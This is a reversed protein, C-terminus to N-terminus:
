PYTYRDGSGTASTGEPTTVTVDVTGAAGPPAIVTVLTGKANVAVVTAVASGFHVSTAGLLGSGSIKVKTGGGVPGSTVSLSSVTPATYTFRDVAGILTPGATTTVVIDVTGAVHAPTRVTVKSGKRNAKVDTAPSGGFDVSVPATLGTGVITVKTGGSSPGTAPAVSTIVPGTVTWTFSTHGAFGSGDIATVTVTVVGSRTPTGTVTGTTPSITLGPPLGVASYSLTATPSSDTAVVHVPTVTAGVRATQDAVTDVTVANTVTWAFTTSGSYGASDTATLTVTSAGATTPTGTLVGTSPEISLGAPLGTASWTLTQGSGSDTADVGVPTIATGSVDTQDGPSTVSVTDTVTWAFTASGSYGAGDTATLTVTSAGATTPIGSVTGTSPDISLGAPLGIASWTLTQGSGSDTADVGVPTIATGSVDTQDGPSTVSM